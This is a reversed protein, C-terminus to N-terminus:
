VYANTQKINCSMKNFNDDTHSVPRYSRQKLRLQIIWAILVAIFAVLIGIVIYILWHKCSESVVRIEPMVDAAAAAADTEDDYDNGDDPQLPFSAAHGKRRSAAIPPCATAIAPESALAINAAQPAATTPASSIPLYEAPADPTSTASQVFPSATTTSNALADIQAGSSSNSTSGAATNNLPTASTVNITTPGEVTSNLQREDDALKTNPLIDIANEAIYDGDHSASNPVELFDDDEEDYHRSGSGYKNHQMGSRSNLLENPMPACDPWCIPCCGDKLTVQRERPCDINSCFPLVCKEVGDVCECEYCGVRWSEGHEFLFNLKEPKCIAKTKNVAEDCVQICMPKGAFCHCRQCGKLWYLQSDDETACNPKRQCEYEGCCQGPKNMSEPMLEVVVEDEGHCDPIYCTKCVCKKSLCCEAYIDEDIETTNYATEDTLQSPAVTTQQVEITNLMERVSSDAPCTMESMPPCKVNYCLHPLPEAALDSCKSEFVLFALLFWTIHLTAM